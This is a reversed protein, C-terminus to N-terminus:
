RERPNAKASEKLRQILGLRGPARDAKQLLLEVEVLPRPLELHPHRQALAEMYANKTRVNEILSDESEVLISLNAAPDALLGFREAFTRTKRAVGLARATAISAAQYTTWELIARLDAIGAAVNADDEGATAAVAQLRQGIADIAAVVQALDSAGRPWQTWRRGGATVNKRLGNAFALAQAPTM